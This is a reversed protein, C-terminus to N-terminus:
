LKVKKTLPKDDSLLKDLKQKLIFSELTKVIDKSDNLITQLRKSLWKVAFVEIGTNKIRSFCTLIFKEDDKLRRSCYKLNTIDNFILVSMIKEKDRMTDTLPLVKQSFYGAYMKCLLESEKM